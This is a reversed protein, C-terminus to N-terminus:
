MLGVATSCRSTALIRVKHRDQIDTRWPVVTLVNYPSNAKLTSNVQSCSQVHIQDSHDTWQAYVRLSGARLIQTLLRAAAFGLLVHLCGAPIAHLLEFCKCNSAMNQGTARSTYLMCDRKCKRDAKHCTLVSVAAIPETAHM